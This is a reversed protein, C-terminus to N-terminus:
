RGIKRSGGGGDDECSPMLVVTVVPVYARGSTM